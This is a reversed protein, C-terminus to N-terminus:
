QIDGRWRYWLWGILIGLIIGILLVLWHFPHPKTSFVFEGTLYGVLGLGVTWLYVVLPWEKSRQSKQRDKKNAVKKMSDMM